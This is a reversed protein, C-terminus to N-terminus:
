AMFRMDWDKTASASYASKATTWFVPRQLEEAVLTAAKRRDSPTAHRAIPGPCNPAINPMPM